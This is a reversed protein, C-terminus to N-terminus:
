NDHKKKAEVGLKSAKKAFLPDRFSGGPHNKVLSRRRKMEAKAAAEGLKDVLQQYPNM